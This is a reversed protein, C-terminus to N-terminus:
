GQQRLARWVLWTELDGAFANIDVIGSIGPVVGTGTYQWFSWRENPYRESPHGAVSRLWFEYGVMSGLDNDAFFDPTTYIVPPTGYHPTVINVFQRIEQRVTEPDPFRRCTKSQHNWEIDLVPPLDGPVYPVNKIYWNAQEAPTRCFYFFHYAGVPVGAARARPANVAYGPDIYDGGETAKLWAFAVGHARAQAWNIDGQYRSADIGHVQYLDPTVGKWEHPKTDGFVKPIGKARYDQARLERPAAM